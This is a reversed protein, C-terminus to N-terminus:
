KINISSRGLRRRAAAPKPAPTMFVITPEPVKNVKGTRSARPTGASLAFM